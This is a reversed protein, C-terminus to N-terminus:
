SFTANTDIKAYISGQDLKSKEKIVEDSINGTKMTGEQSGFGAPLNQGSGISQGANLQSEELAMLYLESLIFRTKLDTVTNEQIAGIIERFEVVGIEYENPVQKFIGTATDLLKLPEINVLVIEYALMSNIPDPMVCGFPIPNVIETNLELKEFAQEITLPTEMPLEVTLATLGVKNGTRFYQGPTVTRKLVVTLENSIPSIYYPLFVAHLSDIAVDNETFEKEIGKGILVTDSAFSSKRSM